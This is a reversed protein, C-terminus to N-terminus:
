VAGTFGNELLEFEVPAKPVELRNGNGPVVEDPCDVPKEKWGFVECDRNGFVVGEINLVDDVGVFIKLKPEDLIL